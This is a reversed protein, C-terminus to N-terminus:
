PNARQAQIPRALPSAPTTRRLRRLVDLVKQPPARQTVDGNLFAYRIVGGTDIVYTAPLPLEDSREGSEVDLTGVGAPMAGMPVRYVIGFRRAATNGEDSLLPFTLKNRKETALGAAPSEPSIALLQAGEALIAPLSKQMERLHASCEPRWGGQSFVVVVPGMAWLESLKIRYGAAENLELDFARDGVGLAKDLIGSRRIADIEAALAARRPDSEIEPHTLLLRAPVVEEDVKPLPQANADAPGPTTQGAAPAAILLLAQIAAAAVAAPVRTELLAGM